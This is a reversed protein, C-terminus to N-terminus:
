SQVACTYCSAGPMRLPEVDTCTPCKHPNGELCDATTPNISNYRRVWEFAANADKLNKRDYGTVAGPGEGARVARVMSLFAAHPILAMRRALEPKTM